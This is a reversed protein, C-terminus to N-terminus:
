FDRTKVWLNKPLGVYRTEIRGHDGDVTKHENFTFGESKMSEMEKFFLVTDDYLRKHNEKVALVYDGDNKIITEAIKKQTGMADILPM